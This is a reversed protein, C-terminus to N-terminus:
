FSEFSSKFIVDPNAVEVSGIDCDDSGNGDGDSPRAQGRQDFFACDSLSGSDIVPSGTMPLFSLTSGGNDALDFLMPDGTLQDLANEDCSGDEVLNNNNNSITTAICENLANSGALISNNLSLTQQTYISAGNGLTATNNIFTSQNIITLAGNFSAAIAGGDNNATNNSFTSNLVTLPWFRHYIAGGINTATNGVFTSNRIIASPGTNTIAGGGRDEGLNRNNTFSSNNIQMLTACADHYVAGARKTSENNDMSVNNLFLSGTNRITSGYESNNNNFNSNNITLHGYNVIVSDFSDTSGEIFTLGNITATNNPSNTFNLINTM